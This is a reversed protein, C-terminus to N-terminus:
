TVEKGEMFIVIGDRDSIVGTCYVNPLLSGFLASVYRAGRSENGLNNIDISEPIPPAFYQNTHTLSWDHSILHFGDHCPNSALSVNVLMEVLTDGKTQVNIPCLSFVPLRSIDSYLVVGTGCFENDPIIAKADTLLKNLQKTLNNM